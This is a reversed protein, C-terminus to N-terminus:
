SQVQTTFFEIFGAATKLETNLLIGDNALIESFDPGVICTGADNSALSVHLILSLKTFEVVM